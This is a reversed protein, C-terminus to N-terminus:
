VLNRLELMECVTKLVVPNVHFSETKRDLELINQNRLIELEMRIQIEDSDLIKALEAATLKGHQLIAMLLFAVDLSFEQILSLNLAELPQVEYYQGSEDIQLSRFWYYFAVILNGNSVSALRDFYVQEVAEQVNPPGGRLKRTEKVRRRVERDNSKNHIYYLGYDSQNHRAMILRRLEEGSREGIDIQFHFLNGLPQTKSLYEFGYRELCIGWLIHHNTQAILWFLHRVAELGGIHRLFLNHCGELLVCRRPGALLVETLTEYSKVAPLQLCGVLYDILADATTLKETIIEHTLPADELFRQRAINLLTSTGIGRHGYIIFSTSLTDQWRKVALDIAALAEDDGSFIADDKLPAFDFHTLYNEPLGWEFVNSLRAEDLARLRELTSMKILGLWQLFPRLRSFIAEFINSQLQRITYWLTIITKLVRLTQSLQRILWQGWIVIYFMLSGYREIDTRVWRLRKNHDEELQWLLGDWALRVPNDLDRLQNITGSLGVKLKQRVPAKTTTSEPESAELLETTAGRIGTLEKRLESVYMPHQEGFIAQYHSVIGLFQRRGIRRLPVRKEGLLRGSDLMVEVVANAPAGDFVAASQEYATQIDGQIAGIQEDSTLEAELRDIIAILQQQETELAQAEASLQAIRAECENRHADISQRVRALDRERAESVEQRIQTLRAETDELLQSLSKEVVPRERLYRILKLHRLAFGIQLLRLTTDPSSTFSTFIVGFFPLIAALDILLLPRLAFHLRHSFRESESASWIRLIYEASFFAVSLTESVAYFYIRYPTLLDLFSVILVVTNM